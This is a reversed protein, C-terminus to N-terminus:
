PVIRVVSVQQGLLEWVVEIDENAMRVCGMSRQKGISDPDITGHIGYSQQGLAHGDMGELGIWFEGLPNQPDDAEMPPLDAYAAIWEAKVSEDHSRLGAKTARAARRWPEANVTDGHKLALVEDCLDDTAAKFAYLSDHGKYILTMATRLEEYESTDTM